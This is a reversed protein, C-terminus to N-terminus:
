DQGYRVPPVERWERRGADVRWLVNSAKGAHLDNILHDRRPGGRRNVNERAGRDVAVQVADRQRSTKIASGVRLDRCQPIPIVTNPPYDCLSRLAPSKAFWLIHILSQSREGAPRLGRPLTATTSRAHSCPCRAVGRPWASRARFRGATIAQRHVCGSKFRRCGDPFLRLPVCVARVEAIGPGASRHVFGYIVCAIGRQSVRIRRLVASDWCWLSQAAQEAECWNGCSRMTTLEKGREPFRKRSSAHWHEVADNGFFFVTESRDEKL